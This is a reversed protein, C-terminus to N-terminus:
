TKYDTIPFTTDHNVSANAIVCNASWTLILNIECNKKRFKTPQNNPQSIIKQYEMIIRNYYNLIILLRRDKKKLYM